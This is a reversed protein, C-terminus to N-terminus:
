STAEAVPALSFDVYYEEDVIFENAAAENITQLVVEGSPTYKFFRGNESNPDDDYVAMLKVIFGDRHQTKETVRFKSRVM